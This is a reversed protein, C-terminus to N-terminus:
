GIVRERCYRGVIFGLILIFYENVTRARAAMAETAVAWDEM